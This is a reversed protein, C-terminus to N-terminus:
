IDCGDERVKRLVDSISKDDKLFLEDKDTFLKEIIQREADSQYMISYHVYKNAQRDKVLGYNKLKALHKSVKPQPLNLIMQLECVCMEEQLLLNIIRLRNEEAILKLFKITDEM